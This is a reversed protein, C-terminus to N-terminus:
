FFVIGKYFIFMIVAAIIALFINGILKEVEPRFATAHKERLKDLLALLQPPLQKPPQYLERLEHGIQNRTYWWARDPNDPDDPLCPM